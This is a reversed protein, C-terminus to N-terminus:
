WLMRHNRVPHNVTHNRPQHQLTHSYYARSSYFSDSIMYIKYWDGEVELYLIRHTSVNDFTFFYEVYFSNYMPMHKHCGLVIGSKIENKDIIM